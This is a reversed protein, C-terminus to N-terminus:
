RGFNLGSAVVLEFVEVDGLWMEDLADECLM